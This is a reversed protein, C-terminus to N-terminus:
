FSKGGIPYIIYGWEPFNSCSLQLSSFLIKESILWMHSDFKFIFITSDILLSLFIKLLHHHSLKSPCKDLSVSDEPLDRDEEEEEEGGGEGTGGGGGEEEGDDGDHWWWWLIEPHGLSRFRM